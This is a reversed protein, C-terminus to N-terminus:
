PADLFPRALESLRAAGVDFVGHHLEPIEVLQAGPLLEAFQRTEEALSGHTNLILVPQALEAVRTEVPYTFVAHYAWTRHKGARLVDVFNEYGRDLSVGPNRNTVAFDWSPQLTTLADPVPKEVVNRRYQEARGDADYYPVGLLLVRRVLDPRSVALEVAVMAGTHYGCVDVTGRGQDGYGLAELVEAMAGAYDALEILGPPPDSAGLGPYDPAIMTRDQGLAEMFLRFYRGSAPNPAFCAMPTSPAVESEPISQLVHVQGFRGDVYQREFRVEASTTCTWLGVALTLWPLAM